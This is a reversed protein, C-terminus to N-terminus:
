PHIKYHQQIRGAGMSRSCKPCEAILRPVGQRATSMKPIVFLRTFLGDSTPVKIPAMGIDPWKAKRELGFLEKFARDQAHIHPYKPDPVAILAM